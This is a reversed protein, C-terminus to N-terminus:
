NAHYSTGRTGRTGRRTETVVGTHGKQQYEKLQEVALQLKKNELLTKMREIPPLMNAHETAQSM